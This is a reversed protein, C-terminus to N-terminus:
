KRWYKDLELIMIIKKFSFNKKFFHHELESCYLIEILKVKKLYKLYIQRYSSIMFQYREKLQVTMSNIFHCPYTTQSNEDSITTFYLRKVNACM